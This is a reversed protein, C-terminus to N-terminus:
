GGESEQFVPLETWAVINDLDYKYDDGEEDDWCQDILNLYLIEYGNKCLCYYPGEEKPLEPYKHWVLSDPLENWCAIMIYDPLDKMLRNLQDLTIIKSM